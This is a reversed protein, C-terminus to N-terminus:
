DHLVAFSSIGAKSLVNHMNVNVQSSQSRHITKTMLSQMIIIIIYYALMIALLNLILAHLYEIVNTTVHNDSYYNDTMM